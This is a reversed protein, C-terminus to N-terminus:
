LAFGGGACSSLPMESGALGETIGSSIRPSNIELTELFWLFVILLNEQGM